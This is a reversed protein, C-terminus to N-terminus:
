FLAHSLPRKEIEADINKLYADFDMRLESAKTRIKDLSLQLQYLFAFLSTETYVSVQPTTRGKYYKSFTTENSQYKVMFCLSSASCGLDLTQESSLKKLADELKKTSKICELGVIGGLIPPIECDGINQNHNKDLFAPSLNRVSAVKEGAYKIFPSNIKQKVELVCYVGEVPIYKVGNENVVFPTVLEDYIVIDIQDSLSGKSDIVVARDIGYQKPLYKRLFEIWCCESADGKIVPHDISKSNFNLSAGMVEQAHM